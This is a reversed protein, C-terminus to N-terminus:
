LGRAGRRGGRRGANGVKATEFAIQQGRHVLDWVERQHKSAEGMVMTRSIDSQYGEVSCGCDM